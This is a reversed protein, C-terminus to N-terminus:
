RYNEHTTVNGLYTPHVLSNADFGQGQRVGVMRTEDLTPGAKVLSARIPAGARVSLVM